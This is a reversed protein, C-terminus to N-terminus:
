SFRVGHRLGTQTLLLKYHMLKKQVVCTFHETRHPALVIGRFHPADRSHRFRTSRVEVKEIHCLLRHVSVANVVKRRCVCDDSM